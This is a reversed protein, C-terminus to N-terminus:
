RAAPKQLEEIYQKLRRLAAKQKENLASIEADDFATAEVRYDVGRDGIVLSTYVGDYIHLGPVTRTATGALKLERVLRGLKRLEGASIKIKKNKLKGGQTEFRTFNGGSDITYGRNLGAFGGTESFSISWDGTQATGATALATTMMMM